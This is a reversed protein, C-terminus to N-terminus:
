TRNKLKSFAELIAPTERFSLLGPIYKFKVEKVAVVKEVISLDEYSLIVVGAFLIDSGFNYSIDAGAVFRPIFDLKEEKVMKSLEEQLKKAEDEGLDWRHNIKPEM